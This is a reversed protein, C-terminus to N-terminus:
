GCTWIFVTITEFYIKGNEYRKDPHGTPLVVIDSM